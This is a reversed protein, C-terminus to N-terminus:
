IDVSSANSLKQAIAGEGYGTLYAGNVLSLMNDVFEKSATIERLVTDEFVIEYTSYGFVSITIPRATYKRERPLTIM